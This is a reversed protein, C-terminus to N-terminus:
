LRWSTQQQLQKSQSQHQQVLQQQLLTQLRTHQQMVSLPPLVQLAFAHVDM